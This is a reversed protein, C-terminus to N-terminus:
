LHIIWKLDLDPELELDRELDDLGLSFAFALFDLADDESELLDLDGVLVTAWLCNCLYLIHKYFLWKSFGESYFTWIDHVM